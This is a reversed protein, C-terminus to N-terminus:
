KEGLFCFLLEVINKRRNKWFKTKALEEVPCVSFMVDESGEIPKGGMVTAMKTPANIKERIM